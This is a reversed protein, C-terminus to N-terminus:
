IEKFGGQTQWPHPSRPSSLASREGQVLRELSWFAEYGWESYLQRAKRGRLWDVLRGHQKLAESVRDLGFLHSGMLAASWLVAVAILFFPLRMAFRLFRMNRCQNSCFQDAM